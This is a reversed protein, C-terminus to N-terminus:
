TTLYQLRIALLFLKILSSMLTILLNLLHFLSITTYIFFILASNLPTTSSCSIILFENNFSKLSIINTSVWNSINSIATELLTINHSFVAASFSLNITKHIFLITQHHSLFSLAVHLPLFFSPFLVLFVGYLIQSVQSESGKIIISSSLFILTSGPSLLLLLVLCLSM